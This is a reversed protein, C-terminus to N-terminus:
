IKVLDASIMRLFPETLLEERTAAKLDIKRDGISSQKKLFVLIDLEKESFLKTGDSSTLLLLDIDGGKLHDQTRSGYLFLEYAHPKLFM